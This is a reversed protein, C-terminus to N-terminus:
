LDYAVVISKSKKSSLNNRKKVLTVLLEKKGNNDFDGVMIDTIQGPVRKGATNPFLGMENWKMIEISGSKFNRLEGFLYDAAEKNKIIVAELKGDDGVDYVINRTQFYVGNGDAADMLAKDKDIYTYFRKSGGYAEEGSWEVQGNDAALNLHGDANLFILGNVTAGGINNGLAMTLVSFGDPVSIKDGIEYQGGVYRVSFVNRGAFPGKRGSKQGYLVKKSGNQVVRLYWPLDDALEKFAGNSLELVLSRMYGTATQVRSIFIEEIGNKNIDAVDVSVVDYYEGGEIRHISKLKGGFNDELIEIDHDYIIVVENKKDGDVDGCAIGNIHGNAAFLYRYNTLPSAYGEGSRQEPQAQQAYFEKPLVQEPKRNFTKLNIEAAIQDLETIVAGPDPAQRSFSLTPNINKVDVMFMDLSMSQGFLTLSGYLVYDVNLGAGILRAKSENLSGKTAEDAQAKKMANEVEERELTTVKGPDAIRSSLMSFLGKQLFTLDQTANMEIPIIAVTKTDDAAVAIPNLCLVFCILILRIIKNKLPKM